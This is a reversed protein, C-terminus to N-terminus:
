ASNFAQSRSVSGDPHTSPQVTRLEVRNAVQARQESEKSPDTAVKPVTVSFPREHSTQSNACSSLRAESTVKVNDDGHVIIGGGLM